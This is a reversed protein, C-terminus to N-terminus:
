VARRATADAVRLDRPAHTRPQLRERMEIRDRWEIYRWTAYAVELAGILLVIGGLVLGLSRLAGIVSAQPHRLTLVSSAALGVTAVVLVLGFVPGMVAAVVPAAVTLGLSLAARVVARNAVRIAGQRDDEDLFAV